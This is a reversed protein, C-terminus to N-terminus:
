KTSRRYRLVARRRYTALIKITDSSPLYAVDVGECQVTSDVKPLFGCVKWGEAFLDELRMM